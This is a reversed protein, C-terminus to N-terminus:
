LDDALERLAKSISDDEITDDALTNPTDSQGLLNKGLFIAMAANREALRFQARRLSIKGLGSKIRFVESYTTGYQERCWKNLTKDDCDFFACCESLTCHLALLKEFEDKDIEKRPRGMVGKKEKSGKTNDPAKSASAKSASAKSTDSKSSRNTNSRPVRSSAKRNKNTM